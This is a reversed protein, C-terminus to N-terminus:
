MHVDVITLYLKENYEKEYKKAEEIETAVNFDGYFDGYDLYEGTDYDRIVAYFQHISDKHSLDIDDIPLTSRNKGKKDFLHENWRGGIVWYDFAGYPNGMEYLTENEDDIQWGARDAYTELAQRTSIAAAEKIAETFGDSDSSFLIRNINDYAEDFTQETVREYYEENEFVFQDCLSDISRDKEHIIGVLAHM